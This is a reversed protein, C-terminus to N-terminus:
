GWFPFRIEPAADGDNCTKKTRATIQKNYKIRVSASPIGKVSEDAFGQALEKQL